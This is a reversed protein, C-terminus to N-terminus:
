NFSAILEEMADIEELVTADLVDLKPFFRSAEFYRGLQKATKGDVLPNSGDPLLHKYATTTKNLDDRLTPILENETIEFFETHANESDVAVVVLINQTLQLTENAILPKFVVEYSTIKNLEAFQKMLSRFMIEDEKTKKGMTDRGGTRFVGVQVFEETENRGIFLATIEGDNETRYNQAINIAHQIKEEM